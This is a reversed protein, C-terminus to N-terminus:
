RPSLNNLEVNGTEIASYIRELRKTRDQILSDLHGAKRSHEKKFIELEREVLLLLKKLNEFIVIREQLTKM